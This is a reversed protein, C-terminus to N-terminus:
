PVARWAGIRASEAAHAAHTTAPKAEYAALVALLRTAEKHQVSTKQAPPATAQQFMTRVDDLFAARSNYHLACLRTRLAAFNLPYQAPADATPGAFLNQTDERELRLILDSM